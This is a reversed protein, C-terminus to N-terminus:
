AAPQTQTAATATTSGFDAPLETYEVIEGDEVVDDSLDGEVFDDLFYSLGSLVAPLEGDELSIYFSTEFDSENGDEYCNHRALVSLYKKSTSFEKTPCDALYDIADNWAKIAAQIEEDAFKDADPNLYAGNSSYFLNRGSFSVNEVFCHDEFLNLSLYLTQSDANDQNYDAPMQMQEKFKEADFDKYVYSQVLKLAKPTLESIPLELNLTQGNQPISVFLVFFNQDTYNGDEFQAIWKEADVTKLEERITNYLERRQDVSFMTTVIYGDGYSSTAFSKKFEPLNTYVDKYAPLSTLTTKLTESDHASIPILRTLTHGSKTVFKIRAWNEEISYTYEDDTDIKQVKTELADTAIKICAKDTIPLDGTKENYYYRYNAGFITDYDDDVDYRGGLKEVYIQKVNEAKPVDNLLLGYFGKSLLVGAICAAAVILLGPIIKVMYRVTRTSLLEYMFYVIIAVIYGIVYLLIEEADTPPESILLLTLPSAVACTLVIRHFAQMKRSPAPNGAAESPRRKFLFLGLALYLLALVTTYLLARGNFPYLGSDGGLASGFFLNFLMNFPGFPFSLTATPIIDYSFAANVITMFFRPLFLILLSVIGNSFLTGTVTMALFIASVILLSLVIVNLIGSFVLSMDITLFRVLFLRYLLAGCLTPVVAFIVIWTMIAALFSIAVCQRPQPIAHYFDSQNRKNLFNFLVLTLLPACVLFTLVLLPNLITPDLVEQGTPQSQAVEICSEAFGIGLALFMFVLPVIGCVRIQRLAERYLKFSFISNKKM